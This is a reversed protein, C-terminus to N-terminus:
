QLAAQQELPIYTFGVAEHAQRSSQELEELLKDTVAAENPGQTSAALQQQM